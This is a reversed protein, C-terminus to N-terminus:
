ESTKSPKPILLGENLISYVTGLAAVLVAVGGYVAWYNVTPAMLATYLLVSVFSISLGAMSYATARKHAPAIYVGVYVFAAGLTIHGSTELYAKMMFSDPDLYAVATVKNILTIVFYALWAGALSAPLLVLWRGFYMAKAKATNEPPQEM